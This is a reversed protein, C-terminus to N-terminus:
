GPLAGGGDAVLAHGTMYAADGSLPFCALRRRQPERRAALLWAGANGTGTSCGSVLTRMAM